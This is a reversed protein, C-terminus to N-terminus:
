VTQSSRKSVTLCRQPGDATAYDVVKQKGGCGLPMFAVGLSLSLGLSLALRTLGSIMM